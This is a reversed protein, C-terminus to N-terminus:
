IPLLAYTKVITGLVFFRASIYVIILPILEVTCLYYLFPMLSSPQHSFHSIGELHVSNQLYWFLSLAVIMLQQCFLPYFMVILSLPFLLMGLLAQAAAYGACGFGHSAKTM